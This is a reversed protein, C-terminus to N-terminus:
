RPGGSFDGAGSPEAAFGGKEKKQFSTLKDAGPMRPNPNRLRALYLIRPSTNLYELLRFGRPSARLKSVKAEPETIDGFTIAENPCAQQCATQFADVPIKINDSAGARVKTAIRAEEIRQVCFTCKEMVGRMRVTVNPNRQMKIPDPSGKTTLPGLHLGGIEGFPTKVPYIPRQTYDFFNFRRVKYPCNNACYRTGICRNYAMSNLGDPTHVTANVPCVTECPANECQQCLVPEVLMEPDPDTDDYSAFYRDIRMWHMERGNIVQEKGVIPSNNEAQCAIVCAQCGTCTNTDVAMGWQEMGTFPPHTYITPNGAKPLEEDMGMTKAFTRDEAFQALTGERIQARGEMNFHQQTIAQVGRGGTFKVQQTFVYYPALTTRLPYVNYGAGTGVRGTDTRGYGLSISISRDAHGPAILIPVELKAGSELTIEITDGAAEYNQVGLERATVPSILAANDWTLRTVPDPAEQLWGNNNYRGDFTHFDPTFVVEYNGAGSVANLSAKEGIASGTAASLFFLSRQTSSDSGALYGDHLFRNWAAAFDPVPGAIQRFTEQVLEPGAPKPLGAFRAFIDIDSWGGYLPLIMPQVAVYTGDSSRGDGWYELYHARPVFWNASNSTEDLLHGSRIVTPISEQLSAWNLEAPADYVPNGGLIFLTSVKKQKISDALAGIKATPASVPLIGAMTNGLAGLASNIAAGLLHVAVPQQSGVMVLARGRNALLDKALEAIWGEPFSATAKTKGLSQAVGALTADNTQSALEAALQVAFVGVESAPIRLRHDAMGGTITYRNEVVYLRNMKHGPEDVRRKDTFGRTQEITGETPSLFDSDLSLVIDAKDLLPRARIGSGFATLEADATNGGLPEYVCWQALPLKAMVAARLRERTPSPDEEMLFALGEGQNASYDVIIKDLAAIFAAEDTDVSANKFCRYRDPDYLNLISAQTFHDTRGHGGNIPHFQNGEIKTPRGEYTSVILPVYGRAAPRSTTYFLFKGPIVWEASRTFPVLHMEPRRCGALGIGALATSAGMIKMFHRRSVDGGNFEAAGQPFERELSAAFDPTGALEDLSRWYKKGGQPEPPHEFVRKM